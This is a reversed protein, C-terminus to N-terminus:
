SNEWFIKNRTLTILSKRIRILNGNEVTQAKACLTSQNSFSTDARLGLTGSSRGYRPNALLGTNPERRGTAISLFPERKSRQPLMVSRLFHLPMHHNRGTWFPRPFDTIGYIHLMSLINVEPFCPQTLYRCKTGLMTLSRKGCAKMSHRRKCRRFLALM